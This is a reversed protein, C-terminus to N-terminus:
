SDVAEKLNAKCAAELLEIDKDTNNCKFVFLSGCGYAKDDYNPSKTIIGYGYGTINYQGDSMKEIEFDVGSPIGRLARHDQWYVIKNDSNFLM